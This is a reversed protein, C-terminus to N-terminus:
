RLREILQRIGFAECITFSIQGISVGTVDAAFDWIDCTRGFYPQTLEDAAAYLVVIFSWVLVKKASTLRIRGGAVRHMGTATFLVIFTLMSYAAVHFLKDYIFLNGLRFNDHGFGLENLNVHTLFALGLVYIALVIKKKNKRAMVARVLPSADSDEGTSAGHSRANLRPRVATSYSSTAPPRPATALKESM